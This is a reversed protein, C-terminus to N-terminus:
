KRPDKSSTGRYKKCRLCHARGQAKKPLPEPEKELHKEDAAEEAALCLKSLFQSASPPDEQEGDYRLHPCFTPREFLFVINALFLPITAANM